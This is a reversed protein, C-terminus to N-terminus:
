AHKVKTEVEAKPLQVTFTSGKNPESQVTIIGNHKEVIAQCISLGLGTGKGVEKTTFFPDFIKSLMEKPIGSGEDKIIIKAWDGSKVLSIHIEGAKKLQKIADRANLVINTVVQELENQNGMVLYADEKAEFIIKINEQELQYGIFTVVNKVVNTLDVKTVEANELPRKAYAMLKQVITRCRKTAEEILELSERDFKGNSEALLMQVNTLIATLPNNIEHAVGGALTGVSALKEAQILQKQMEVLEKTRERVQEEMNEYLMANEVALAAQNALVAFTDLDQTTYFGGARKEGLVLFGILKDKLFGPVIVIAQLLRMSRELEKFIPNTEEQTKRYIEEYVLSEKQNELWSILPDEKNTSSPLIKKFNRTASLLFRQSKDDLLYIASHSISATKTVIHTILNLLRKLKHIRALERAAQKLTNQYTYQKRLLITEAKRQLYIYMYPGTAALIILLVFPGLWWNQGLIIMLWDKAIASLAIPIGLVLTYVVVFIGTRTVAVKIDMLRYKVIAYSTIIPYLVVAINSVPYLSINFCPLFSFGGGIFGSATGIFFYKIQNRKFLGAKKYGRIMDIHTLGAIGVFFVLIYFLLFPSPPYIWYGPQFIKSDAFFLSVKGLFIDKRFINLLLMALSFVYITRLFVPRKIDLFSYVFHMFLVPIMIIGIYAFQWWSFASKADESLSVMYAGFGYIAITLTLVIWIKNTKTKPGKVFVFISIATSTIAILLNSIGYLPIM